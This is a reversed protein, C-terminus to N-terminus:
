DDSFFATLFDDKDVNGTNTLNGLSRKRNEENQLNIRSQKENVRDQIARKDAEVSEYAELLTYGQRMLDYVEKDLKDPAKDPYRKQFKDVQREIEQRSADKEEEAKKQQATIKDAKTQNVHLRAMEELLKEDAGEYQSRLNELERNLEFQTQVDSLNQLYDDVSLGNAQALRSIENIASEYPKLAEYRGYVADYNLGKQALTIAEEQTLGRDEKNYRVTLFPEASTQEPVAEKQEDAVSESTDETEVPTDEATTVDDDGFLNDPLDISEESGITPNMEDTM